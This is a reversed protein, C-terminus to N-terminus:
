GLADFLESSARIEGRGDILELTRLRSLANNFGGGSAEYGTAAAVEDKLLSRPHANAVADLIMSEARGLSRKWHELLASGTPLPEYHGLDAQGNKTIEIPDSGIILGRSRLASLYNNFGGGNIAYGSLLAIQRKTSPGRQALVTLIKREGGSLSSSASPTTAKLKPASTSTPRPATITPAKARQERITARIEKSEEILRAASAEFTAALKELASVQSDKLIPVEVTKTEVKKADVDRQLEVIKAKLTRPDNEKAREATAKIAAGLREVDVSALAKPSRAREGPKPTAGSDFTERRRITAREFIGLLPSWVYGTGTPLNPLATMMAAAESESAHVNVWERIAGLDRPHGLRFTTLVECQTLVDKHLVQPRQTILTCGIGRRRGRRVIDEAAGLLRLTDGMAKQPAVVDAEDIFLHIADRNKQYLTELFATMFRVSEGKRFHSLDVVASFREDVIANAVLEGANVELPVDAHDGGLVAIPFAPSKGDASSRLGYWAGTPDIAVIPQGAKLMEEALVSAAFSKGSGRQGIIAHATTVVSSPLNLSNSIRLNMSETEGEM